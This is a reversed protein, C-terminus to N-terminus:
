RIVMPNLPQPAPQPPLGGLGVHVQAKPGHPLIPVFTAIKGM